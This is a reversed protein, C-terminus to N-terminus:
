YLFSRDYRSVRFYPMAFRLNIAHKPALERLEKNFVTTYSYYLQFHGFAFGIQPRYFWAKRNSDDLNQIFGFQFIKFYVGYIESRRFTGFYYENITRTSHSSNFGFHVASIRRSVFDSYFIRRFNYHYRDNVFDLAIEGGYWYGSQDYKFNASPTIAIFNQDGNFKTIQYSEYITNLLNSVQNTLSDNTLSNLFEPIDQPFELKSNTYLSDIEFRRNVRSLLQSRRAYEVICFKIYKKQKKSDTLTQVKKYDDIVIKHGKLIMDFEIKQSVYYSPYAYRLSDYLPKNRNFKHCNYIAEDFINNLNGFLEARRFYYQAKGFQTYTNIYQEYDKIEELQLNIKNNRWSYPTKITFLKELEEHEKKEQETKPELFPNKNPIKAEFPVFGVPRHKQSYANIGFLIILAYLFPTKM